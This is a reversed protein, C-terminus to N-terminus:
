GDITFFLTLTCHDINSIGGSPAGLFDIIIGENKSAGELINEDAVFYTSYDLNKAVWMSADPFGETLFTYSRDDGGTRISDIVEGDSATGDIGIHEMVVLSM